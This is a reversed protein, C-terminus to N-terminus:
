RRWPIVIKAGKKLYYEVSQILLYFIYLCTVTSLTTVKLDLSYLWKNRIKGGMM